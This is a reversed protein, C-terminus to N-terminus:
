EARQKEFLRLPAELIRSMVKARNRLLPLLDEMTNASEIQETLKKYNEIDSSNAYALELKAFDKM